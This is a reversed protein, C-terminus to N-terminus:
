DFAVASPTFEGAPEICAIVFAVYKIAAQAREVPALLWNPVFCYLLALELSGTCTNLTV